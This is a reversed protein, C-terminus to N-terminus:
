QVMKSGNVKKNTKKRAKNHKGHVFNFKLCACLLDMTGMKLYFDLQKIRGRQIEPHGILTNSIAFQTAM